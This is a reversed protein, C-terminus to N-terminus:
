AYVGVRERSARFCLKRWLARHLDRDAQTLVEGYRALELRTLMEREERPMDPIPGHHNDSRIMVWAAVERATM